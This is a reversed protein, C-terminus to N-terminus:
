GVIYRATGWAILLADLVLVEQCAQLVTLDM